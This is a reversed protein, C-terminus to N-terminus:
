PLTIQAQEAVFELVDEVNKDPDYLWASKAGQAVLLAREETQFGDLDPAALNGQLAPEYLVSLGVSLDTIELQSFEEIQLQQGATACLQFLTAQLPVGRRVSLRALQIPEERGHIEIKLNVGEVSGDSGGPMYYTPVAGRCTAWVNHGCWAAM